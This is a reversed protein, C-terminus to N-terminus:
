SARYTEGCPTPILGPPHREKTSHLMLDGSSINISLSYARRTALPYMESSSYYRRRPAGPRPSVAPTHSAETTRPAAAQQSSISDQKGQDRQPAQPDKPKSGPHQRGQNHQPPKPEQPTAAPAPQSDDQAHTRTHTHAHTRTHTHAHTRTTPTSSAM